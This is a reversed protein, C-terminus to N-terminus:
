KIKRHNWDFALVRIHPTPFTKKEKLSDVVGHFWKLEEVVSFDPRMQNDAM